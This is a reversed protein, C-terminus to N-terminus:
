YPGFVAQCGAACALPITSESTVSGEAIGTPYIEVVSESFSTVTFPASQAAVLRGAGLGMGLTLATNFLM